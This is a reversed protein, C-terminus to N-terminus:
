VGKPDRALGATEKVSFQRVSQGYSCPCAAELVAGLSHTPKGRQLHTESIEVLHGNLKLSNNKANKLPVPINIRGSINVPMSEDWSAIQAKWPHNTSTILAGVTLLNPDTDPTFATPILSFLNLTRALMGPSSPVEPIKSFIKRQPM